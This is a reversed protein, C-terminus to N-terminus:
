IIRFYINMNFNYTPLQHQVSRRQQLVDSIGSLQSRQVWTLQDKCEPREKALLLSCVVQGWEDKGVM